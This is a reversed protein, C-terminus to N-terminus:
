IQLDPDHLTSEEKERMSVCVGVGVYPTLNM